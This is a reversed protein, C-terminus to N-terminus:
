KKAVYDKAKNAAELAKDDLKNKTRPAVYALILAAVSVVLALLEM